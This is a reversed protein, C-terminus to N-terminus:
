FPESLQIDSVQSYNLDAYPDSFSDHDHRPETLNKYYNDIRSQTDAPMHNDGMFLLTRLSLHWHWIYLEEQQRGNLSASLNAQLSGGGASSVIKVLTDYEQPWSIDYKIMKRILTINSKLNPQFWIALLDDDVKDLDKAVKRATFLFSQHIDILM